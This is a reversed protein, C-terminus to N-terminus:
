GKQSSPKGVNMCFIRTTLYCGRRRLIIDITLFLLESLTARDRLSIAWDTRCHQQYQLKSIELWKTMTLAMNNKMGIEEIFRDVHDEVNGGDNYVTIASELADSHWTKCHSVLNSTKKGPQSVLEPHKTVRGAFKKGPTL